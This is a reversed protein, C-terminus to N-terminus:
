PTDKLNVDGMVLLPPVVFLKPFVELFPQKQCWVADSFRYLSEKAWFNRM